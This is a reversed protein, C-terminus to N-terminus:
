VIVADSTLSVADAVNVTVDADIVSVGVDPRGPDILTDPMPKACV